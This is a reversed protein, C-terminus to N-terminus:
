PVYHEKFLDLFRTPADAGCRGVLDPSLNGFEEEFLTARGYYYGEKSCGFQWLVSPDRGLSSMAAQDSRALRAEDCCRSLRYRDREEFYSIGWTNGQTTDRGRAIADFAELAARDDSMSAALWVPIPQRQRRWGM